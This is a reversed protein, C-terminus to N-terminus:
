CVFHHDRNILEHYLMYFVDSILDYAKQVILFTLQNSRSAKNSASTFIAKWLESEILNSWEFSESNLNFRIEDKEINEINSSILYMAEIFANCKNKFEINTKREYHISSLKKIWTNKTLKYAQFIKKEVANNLFNSWSEKKAAQIAQFYDNRHRKFISLNEETKSVKHM